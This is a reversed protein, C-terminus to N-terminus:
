EGHSLKRLERARAYHADQKEAFLSAVERWADYSITDSLYAMSVVHHAEGAAHGLASEKFALELNKNM